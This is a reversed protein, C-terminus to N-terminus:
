SSAVKKKHEERVRKEIARREAYWDSMYQAVQPKHESRWAKLAANKKLRKVELDEFTPNYVKKVRASRTNQAEIASLTEAALDSTNEDSSQEIEQDSLKKSVPSGKKM